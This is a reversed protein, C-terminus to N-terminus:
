APKSAATRIAAVLTSVGNRLDNKRVAIPFWGAAILALRRANDRAISIEDTHEQDSDYEVAVRVDPLGIDVRAIFEGHNDRIVYQTAIRGLNANRLVQLLATEPDSETVKLAPDWRALVERAIAIGPRGRTALRSFVAITSGITALRKRLMAHLFTEIFDASKYISAMEILLREPRMVAIGDVHRIDDPNIRTSEHV